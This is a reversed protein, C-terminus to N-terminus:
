MHVALDAVVPEALAVYDEYKMRIAERHSGAQFVINDQEALHEDVYTRLNYLHGFPPEAGVESDPFLKAMETEDALRALRTQLIQAVKNMDLMFSAPLVFMAFGEDDHVVVTKALINGSVHEEKVVEQATYAPTHDHKEFSVGRESLYERINM